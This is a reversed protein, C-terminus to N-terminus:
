QLRRLLRNKPTNKTRTEYVLLDFLGCSLRVSTMRSFSPPPHSLSLSFLTGAKKGEGGGGDKEGRDLKRAATNRVKDFM